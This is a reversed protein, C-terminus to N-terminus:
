SEDFNLKNLSWFYVLQGMTQQYHMICQIMESIITGKKPYIAVHGEQQQEKLRHKSKPHSVLNLNKSEFYSSINTAM